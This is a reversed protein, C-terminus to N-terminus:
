GWSIALPGWWIPPPRQLTLPQDADDCGRSQVRRRPPQRLRDPTRRAQRRRAVRRRAAGQMRDPVYGAMNVGNSLATTAEEHTAGCDRLSSYDTLRATGYKAFVACVEEHGAYRRAVRYDDISIGNQHAIVLDDHALGEGRAVAYAAHPLGLQDAALTEAHSAGLGRAAFYAKASTHVDIGEVADAHCSGAKRFKAYLGLVSANLVNILSIEDASAGASRAAVFPPLRIGAWQAEVLESHAVGGARGALYEELDLGSGIAELLQNTFDPSTLDSGTEGAASVQTTSHTM